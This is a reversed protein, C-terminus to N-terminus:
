LVTNTVGHSWGEQFADVAFDFFLLQLAGSSLRRRGVRRALSGLTGAAAALPWRCCSRVADRVLVDDDTGHFFTRRRQNHVELTVPRISLACLEAFCLPVERCHVIASTALLM